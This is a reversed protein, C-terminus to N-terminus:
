IKERKIRGSFIRKIKKATSKGGKKKELSLSLSFLRTM